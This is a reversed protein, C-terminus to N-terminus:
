TASFRTSMGIDAHHHKKHCIRCLTIGNSIDYRLEFHDEWPKIHHAIIDKSKCKKGCDQCTFHDRRYVSNRWDHYKKDQRGKRNESTIGGKWNPHDAGKPHSRKDGNKVNEELYAQFDPRPKGRSQHGLIYRREIQPRGNVLIWKKIIEGCGCHCAWTEEPNRNLKKAHGKIYHNEIPKIRGEGNRRWRYTLGGCGCKCPWKEEPDRGKSRERRIFVQKVFSDM